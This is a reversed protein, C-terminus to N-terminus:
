RKGARACRAALARLERRLERAAKPPLGPTPLLRFDFGLMGLYGALMVPHESGVHALSTDPGDEEVQIGIPLRRRLEAAPAFVRVTVRLHWTAQQVGRAVHLALDEDPPPRPAFRPGPHGRLTLRDVRFTRWAARDRDWAVLYWRRGDHALRHPETDRLSAEGGFSRYDFRLCEHDGCAAAITTLAVADVTPGARPMALMAQQLAQFRRRVRGPMLQDLKTLARLSTEEIGSVAGAAATALGIAVAVAEDNDLLLPPLEAGGGLRYGGEVGPSAHVPYGLDRLRAVDNRVTRTTVEMERALEGGTWARRRQLLTLLHLLRTSTKM